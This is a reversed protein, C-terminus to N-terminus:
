ITCGPHGKRKAFVYAEHALIPTEYYGIHINKGKITIVARWRGQHLTVGLFGSKNSRYAGKVNQINIDVTVDRLNRISNNSKDGDIHDIHNKPWEGYVYFWALRHLRARKGNFQYESYHSKSTKIEEGALSRSNTTVIRTFIGTGEDYHLLNKLKDQTIDLM